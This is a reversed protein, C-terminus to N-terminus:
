KNGTSHIQTAEASVSSLLTSTSALELQQQHHNLTRAFQLQPITMEMAQNNLGNDVIVVHSTPGPGSILLEGGGSGSLVENSSVPDKSVGSVSTAPKNSTSYQQQSSQTTTNKQINLKRDHAQMHTQM